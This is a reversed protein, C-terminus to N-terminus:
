EITTPKMEYKKSNEKESKITSLISNYFEDFNEKMKNLVNISIENIEEETLNFEECLINLSAKEEFLIIRFICILLDKTSFEQYKDKFIKILKAITDYDVNFKNSNSKITSSSPFIVDYSYEPSIPVKVSKDTKIRYNDRSIKIEDKTLITNSANIHIVKFGLNKRNNLLRTMIKPKINQHFNNKSTFNYEDLNKGYISYVLMQEEYPLEYIANKLEDISYDPFLEIIKKGKRKIVLDKGNLLSRIHMKITIYFCKKDNRSANNNFTDLDNGYINYIIEQENIPLKSIAEKIEEITNDPFLEIINKGKRGVRKNIIEKGNLLLIIHKKIIKSFKQKDNRSANNNFTDLDNGYINYIIEQENFPLKSIAEKIQEITFTPFYETINKVKKGKRKNVLDKGALLSKIHFKITKTFKQKDIRSASSNFSDLNNGYLNYVIEQENTPLLSIVEKIEALTFNPFYEIITKGKQGSIKTLNNGDLLLGIHKKIYKSFKQKDIRSASSNFTDLNNGYVSYVIKQEITPLKSIAIKIEELTTNPFHEIIVKAKKGYRPLDKGDLLSKIHFKITQYFKQRETLPIDNNFTDLNIGYINYVTEQENTPLKSIAEKIDELTNNPFYEIIPKGKSGGRKKTLDKGNLLLIIHKKLYKNFREKDNKSAGSNFIDLSNGYVHYVTKQENIPLKSIADKIEELTYNPFYEIITKGKPGKRKKILKKGDLLLRIHKKIISTFKQKDIRSANSNFSDLNNGYVNYVIGQEDNPLKSVADKIEELTNNPFYYLINKGQKGNRKKTLDKGNLLLIIHKKIYKSFKNKDNKSANSNITDLSSGFINYITEQDSTPLKSIVDKIEELTNNPFYNFFTKGKRGVIIKEIKEDLLLKINKIVTRKFKRKEEYSLENYENLDTGFIKYILEKQEIPLKEIVLKVEDFTYGPFNQMFDEKILANKREQKNPKEIKKAINNQHLTEKIIPEKVLDLSNMRELLLAKLRDLFENVSSESTNMKISIEKNNLNNKYKLVLLYKVKSSLMEIIYRIDLYDKDSLNVKYNPYLDSIIKDITSKDNSDISPIINNKLFNDIKNTICRIAFSRFDGNNTLNFNIIADLMGQKAIRFLLPFDFNSNPLRNAVINYMLTHSNTFIIDISETNGNRYKKILEIYRDNTLPKDNM